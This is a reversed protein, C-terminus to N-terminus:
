RSLPITGTAIVRQLSDAYRDIQGGRLTYHLSEMFALVRDPTMAFFQRALVAGFAYVGVTAEDM